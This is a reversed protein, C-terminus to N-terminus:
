SVTQGILSAQSIQASMEGGLTLYGHSLFIWHRWGPSFHLTSSGHAFAWWPLQWRISSSLRATSVIFFSSHEPLYPVADVKLSVRFHELNLSTWTITYDPQEQIHGLVHFCVCLFTYKLVVHSMTCLPQFTFHSWKHVHLCTSMDM